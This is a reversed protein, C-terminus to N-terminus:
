RRARELAEWFGRRLAHRVEDHLLFDIPLSSGQLLRAELDSPMRPKRALVAELWLAPADRAVGNGFEQGEEHASQVADALSIAPLAPAPSYSPVLGPGPPLAEPAPPLGTVPPGGAPPLSNVPALGNGPVPGGAGGPVPGLAGPPMGPAASAPGAPAQGVGTMGSVSELAGPVPGSGLALAGTGQSGPGAPQPGNSSPGSFSPGNLAPGNQAPGNFSPGNFSPGSFSPGSFSPGGGPQPGGPQSRAPPASQAGSPPAPQPGAAPASQPGGYAQPIGPGYGAPAGPGAPLPQGPPLQGPQAQPAGMAPGATAAPSPAPSIAGAPDRGPLRRVQPRAEVPVPVLEPRGAQGYPMNDAARYGLDAADRGALERPAGPSYGSLDQPGGPAGFGGQSGPTFQVAPPMQAAVPAPYLEHSSFIEVPGPLGPVGDHGLADRGEPSQGPPLQPQGGSPVGTSAGAGAGPPVQRAPSLDPRGAPVAGSPMMYDPMAPGAPMAPPGVPVAPQPGSYMLHPDPVRSGDDYPSPLPPMSSVDPWGGEGPSGAPSVPGGPGQAAQRQPVLTQVAAAPLEYRGPPYGNGGAGAPAPTFSPLSRGDGPDGGAQGAAALGGPSGASGAPDATGTSAALGHGNTGARPLERPRSDADDAGAPEAGSILDVYPRLDSASIEVIDDCEQRLTRSITWNGDSTIHLMTVRM